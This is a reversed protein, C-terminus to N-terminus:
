PFYGLTRLRHFVADTSVHFLQGMEAISLNMHSIAFSVQWRPMLLESAFTNVGYDTPDPLENIHMDERHYFLHGLEEAVVFRQLTDPDEKRLFIRAVGKKESVSLMGRWPAEPREYVEIGLGKAIGVVPTPPNELGFMDLIYRAKPKSGRLQQWLPIDMKPGSETYSAVKSAAM